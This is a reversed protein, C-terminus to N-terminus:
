LTSIKGGGGGGGSPGSYGSGGGGGSPASAGGGGSTGGGGSAGGGAPGAFGSGPAGRATSGTGGGNGAGGCAPYVIVTPTSLIVTLSAGAALSSAYLVRNWGLLLAYSDAPQLPIGDVFAGAVVSGPSSLATYDDSIQVPVASSNYLTGVWPGGPVVQVYNPFVPVQIKM